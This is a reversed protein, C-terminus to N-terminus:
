NHYYLSNTTLFVGLLIFPHFLSLFAQSTEGDCLIISSSAQLFSNLYIRLYRFTFSGQVSFPANQVTSRLPLYRVLYAPLPIYALYRPVFPGHAFRVGRGGAQAKLEPAM